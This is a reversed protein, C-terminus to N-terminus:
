FKDLQRSLLTLYELMTHAIYFPNLLLSLKKLLISVSYQSLYTVSHTAKQLHKNGRIPVLGSPADLIWYKLFWSLKGIFSLKHPFQYTQKWHNSYTASRLKQLLISFM